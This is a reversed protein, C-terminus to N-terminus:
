RVTAMARSLALVYADPVRAEPKTSGWWRPTESYIRVYEDSARLVAVVALELREPRDAAHAISWRQNPSELLLSPPHVFIDVRKRSPEL